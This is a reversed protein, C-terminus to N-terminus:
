LSFLVTTRGGSRVFGNDGDDGDDDDFELSDMSVPIPGGAGNPYPYPSVLYGMNFSSTHPTPDVKRTYHFLLAHQAYYFVLAKNEYEKNLKNDQIDWRNPIYPM